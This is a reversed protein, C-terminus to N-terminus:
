IAVDMLSVNAAIGDTEKFLCVIEQLNHMLHRSNTTLQHSNDIIEICIHIKAVM